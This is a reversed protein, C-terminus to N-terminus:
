KAAKKNFDCYKRLIVKGYYEYYIIDEYILSWCCLVPFVPCAGDSVPNGEVPAAAIVAPNPEPIEKSEPRIALAGTV